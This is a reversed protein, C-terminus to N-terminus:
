GHEEGKVKKSRTPKSPMGEARTQLKESGDLDGELSSSRLMLVELTLFKM